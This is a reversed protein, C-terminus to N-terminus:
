PCMIAPLPYQFPLTSRQASTHGGGLPVKVQPRAQQVSPSKEPWNKRQLQPTQHPSSMSKNASIERDVIESASQCGLLSFNTRPFSFSPRNSVWARPQLISSAEERTKHGITESSTILGATTQGDSSLSPGQKGRLGSGIFVPPQSPLQSEQTSISPHNKKRAQATTCLTKLYSSLSKKHGRTM